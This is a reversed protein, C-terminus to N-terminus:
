KQAPAAAPASTPAPNEASPLDAPCQLNFLVQRSRNNTLPEDKAAAQPASPKVLVEHKRLDTVIQNIQEDDAIVRYSYLDNLGAKAKADRTLRNTVALQKRQEAEIPVNCRVLLKKFEDEEVYERPAVCTFTPLEADKAAADLKEPMATPPTIPVGQSNLSAGAAEDRRTAPVAARMQPAAQPVPKNAAERTLDSQLSEAPKDELNSLRPLAPDNTARGVADAPASQADSAPMAEISGGAPPAQAVQHEAPQQERQDFVLIALAAAVAMAPWVLRRWGAGRLWLSKAVAKEDGRLVTREARRLVSSGLDESLQEHPLARLSDRMACLEDHFQRLEPSETLWSEVRARDEVSLEGDVYASILEERSDSTM